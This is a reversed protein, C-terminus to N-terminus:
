KKLLKEFLFLTNYANFEKEVRKQLDKDVKSVELTVKIDLERGEKREKVNRVNYQKLLANFNLPKNKKHLQIFLLPKYGLKIYFEEAGDRAGLYIKRKHSARARKEIEKMLKKGISKGRFKAEIALEGVFLDTKQDLGFIAGCFEKGDFCGLLYEPHKAHAKRIDQITRGAETNNFIRKVKKFVANLERKKLIRIEFM